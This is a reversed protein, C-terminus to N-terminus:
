FQERISNLNKIEDISYRRDPLNQIYSVLDKPVQGEIEFALKKFREVFPILKLLVYKGSIDEFVYVENFEFDHEKINVGTGRCLRSLNHIVTDVSKEDYTYGINFLTNLTFPSDPEQNFILWGYNIVFEKHKCFLMYEINSFPKVVYGRQGKFDTEVKEIKIRTNGIALNFEQIMLNMFQPEEIRHATRWTILGDQKLWKIAEVRNERTLWYIINKTPIFKKSINEKVYNEITSVLKERENFIQKLTDFTEQWVKEADKEELCYQYHDYAKRGLDLYPRELKDPILIEYKNLVSEWSDITNAIGPFTKNLKELRKTRIRDKFLEAPAKGLDMGFHKVCESGVVLEKGNARNTIYCINKIPQHCLECPTREDGDLVDVPFAKKSTWEESAQKIVTKFMNRFFNQTDDPLIELESEKINPNYELFKSLWPYDEIIKSNLLLMEERLKVLKGNAM